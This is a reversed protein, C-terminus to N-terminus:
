PQPSLVQALWGIAPIALAVVLWILVVRVM